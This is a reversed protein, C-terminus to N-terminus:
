RAPRWNEQGGGTPPGGPADKAYTYLPKTKYAWQISGDDRGILTWDGMPRSGAAATFPRWTTACVGVCHSMGVMTDFDFTYLPLGGPDTLVGAHVTVGEPTPSAGAPPGAVDTTLVLVPVPRTPKPGGPSATETWGVKVAGCSQIAPFALAGAEAPLRADVEFGDAEHPAIVGGTWALEQGGDEAKRVSVTWGAKPKPRIQDVGAPVVVVLGTTPQGDCGHGVVFRLTQESGPPATKPQVTVHAEAAGWALGAALATAVAFLSDKSTFAIKM